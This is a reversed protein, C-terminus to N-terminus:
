YNPNTGASTTTDKIPPMGLKKRLPDLMGPTKSSGCRTVGIKKVEILADLDRVGGAAKVQVNDAAHSRMLKLDDMTAGSSGFGTSTKVWDAGLENCIQCLRIKHEDELYCNEFIVKVKRDAAHAVEIVAAIDSRVYDWNGSLVQNVNVVMDLEECGEAIAQQAEARKTATTHGGHPFGIVTSAKIGTDSLMEACRKLYFPMICVSAVNYSIALQIGQDFDAVAMNPNLMSHDIMKALEEYSYEM